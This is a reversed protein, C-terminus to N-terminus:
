CNSSWKFYEQQPVLCDCIYDKKKLENEDKFISKIILDRTETHLNFDCDHNGPVIVYNIKIDKQISYIQQELQTLFSQASDYEIQKGSDAVDGTLVLFIHNANRIYNKLADRINGIRKFIIDGKSKFHMDSLHILLINMEAGKNHM